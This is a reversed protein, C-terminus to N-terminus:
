NPINYKEKLAKQMRHCELLKAYVRQMNLLRRSEPSADASEIESVEVM